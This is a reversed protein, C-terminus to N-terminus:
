FPVIFYSLRAKPKAPLSSWAKEKAAHSANILCKREPSRTVSLKERVASVRPANRVTYISRFVWEYEKAPWFTPLSSTPSSTAFKSDM